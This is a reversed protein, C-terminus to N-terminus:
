LGKIEQSEYLDRFCKGNNMLDEYRGTEEVMGNNIVLIEDYQSLVSEDLRHTVAILTVEPIHLMMNEIELYNKYDLASTAEDMFYINKGALLARAIAIRQKEGGSFNRGGEEIVSQKGRELKNVLESLCAKKIVEDIESDSYKSDFMTVNEALTGEFVVNNQPIYCVEDFVSDMNAEAFDMSDYLVTGQYDNFYGLLMKLITSKGSGSAGVLAYKKGKEFTLTVENLIKRDNKQLSVNKLEIKKEYTVVDTGFDDVSFTANYRNVIQKNGLINPLNQAINGIPSAVSGSIFMIAFVEGVSMKGSLAMFMGFVLISVLLLNSAVGMASMLIDMYQYAYKKRSGLKNNIRDFRSCVVNCANYNKYTEFGDMCDNIIQLFEQNCEAFGGMRKQLEGVFFNPLIVPIFSVGLVFMASGADMSLLAFMAILLTTIDEVMAYLPLVYNKEILDVDNILMSSYTSSGDEMYKSLSRVQINEYLRNRINKFVVKKCYNKTGLYIVYMALMLGTTCLIKLTFKYFEEISGSAVNMSDGLYESFKVATWTYVLYAGFYLIM